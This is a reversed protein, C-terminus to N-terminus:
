PVFQEVVETVEGDNVYLWLLCFDGPCEIYSPGPIPWDSYPLESHEGIGDFTGLTWVVADSAVPVSRIAPNRNRIYYDNAVEEGDAEGVTYAIDGFYFCALDLDIAAAGTVLGFGFWIGDPLPGAGPACGSGSAGDSGPLPAPPALSLPQETLFPGATTATTPPAETTTTSATTTPAVTTTTTPPASSTTTAVSSTTTTPETTTPSPEVTTSTEDASSTCAGVILTFAGVVVFWKAM